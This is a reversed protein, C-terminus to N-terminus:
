KLWVEVRRNVQRGWETDDCAMPLAEGFATATLTLQDFRATDAAKRVAREVGEARRQALQQNMVAPGDGDSFGIFSLHRGDFRGEELARALQQVNSRSQADLRISGPEFRFSLSLRVRKKLSRTMEQLADLTIESGSNSIANALRDGQLNLPIEETEQDVFRARRIIIQAPQSRTFALFDRALQPLRRAPLYLFLPATLPYDETKIGRRDASLTYGCSGRLSLPAVNRLQSYRALGLALPDRAVANVLASDSTHQTDTGPLTARAPRLIKDEIAQRAGGGSLPLHVTIPADPGGLDAWSQLDGALVAALKELSIHRLPNATSVIPVLGDLAIVRSRNPGSIDGYGVDDSLAAEDKRVERLAMVVDAEDALLDAFGEDTTSIHFRFRAEVRQTTKRRLEYIFREPDDGIQREASLGERAAFGELLAPLLVAGIAEAGSFRVEAIFNELSPCGPGSCNVGSGDVTLEGFQTEVRYFAGDYGLLTGSIEISGDRSSLIVDDARVAQGWLAVFMLATSVAARLFAM